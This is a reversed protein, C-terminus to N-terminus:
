SYPDIYRSSRSDSINYLLNHIQKSRRAELLLRRSREKAAQQEIRKQIKKQKLWQAFAGERDKREELFAVTEQQRLEEMKKEKLQDKHKRKLWTTFAESSAEEKEKDSSGSKELEKAQQIRKEQMLQENKKQLWVKFAMENERRKQEEEEKKREEEERRLREQREQIRKQLEKQEPTLSFTTNRTSVSASQVRRSPKVKHLSKLSHTASSPRVRPGGPPQPVINKVNCVTSTKKHGLDDKNHLVGFRSLQMSPSPSKSLEKSNNIPPLSCQNEIDRLSVLEFKGDKEILVKGNKHEEEAKENEELNEEKDPVDNLHLKIIGDVVDDETIIESRESDPFELPPVELDVLNDKFKLKRQRNEDVTEMELKKNAEEIKEAIYRKAEEDEPDVEESEPVSDLTLKANMNPVAQAIDGNQTTDGKNERKVLQTTNDPKQETFNENDDENESTAHQKEEENILWDLDKEFDDEYEPGGESDSEEKESMRASISHQAGTAMGKSPVAMRKRRKM